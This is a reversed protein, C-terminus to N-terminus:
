WFYWDQVHWLLQGEPFYRGHHRLDLPVCGFRMTVLMVLWSRLSGYDVRACCPLFSWCLLPMSWRFRVAVSSVRHDAPHDPGYPDADAARFPHRRVQLLGELFRLSCLAFLLVVLLVLVAFMGSGSDVVFAAVLPLPKPLRGRGGRGARRCVWEKWAAHEASTLPLALRRPGAQQAGAHAGRAGGVAAEAM